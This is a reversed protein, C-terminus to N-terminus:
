ECWCGFLCRPVLEWFGGNTRTDGRYGEILHMGRRLMAHIMSGLDDSLEVTVSTGTEASETTLIRGSIHQRGIRVVNSRRLGALLMLETAFREHTGIVHAKRFLIVDDFSWGAFGSTKYEPLDVDLTPDIKVFRMNTGWSFLGRIAKLFNEAM